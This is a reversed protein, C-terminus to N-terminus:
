SEPSVSSSSRPSAQRGIMEAQTDNGLVTGLQGIAKHRAFVANRWHEVVARMDISEFPPGVPDAPRVPARPVLQAELWVGDSRRADETDVVLRHGAENFYRRVQEISLDPEPWRPDLFVFTEYGDDQLV